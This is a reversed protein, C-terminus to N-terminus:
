PAGEGRPGELEDWPSTRPPRRAAERQADEAVLRAPREARVQGVDALIMRGNLGLVLIAAAPVVVILVLLPDTLSNQNGAEALSWFPNSIQLLTYREERLLPSMLQIVLPVLSGVALLVAHVAVAGVPPLPYFRRLGRLLLRGVGLFLTVYSVMLVMFCVAPLLNPRGRAPAFQFLENAVLCGTGFLLGALLNTVVFMYGTGPGPHFWTLFVRGLFSQPLRRRARPSLQGSESTLLTGMVYWHIGLLWMLALPFDSFGSVLSLYFVWGAICGHQVFMVWRLPTSRNESAFTLQGAAALVFLAFYTLYATALIGNVAWFEWDFWYASSRLMQWSFSIAFFFTFALGLIVVVSVVVQGYRS